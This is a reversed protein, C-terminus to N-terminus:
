HREVQPVKALQLVLRLAANVDEDSPFAAVVDPALVRVNSGVRKTSAYRGRAVVPLQSLDYEERLDYDDPPQVQPTSDSNM